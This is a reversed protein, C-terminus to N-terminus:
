LTGDKEMRGLLLHTTSTTFTLPYSYEGTNPTGQITITKGTSADFNLAYGRAPAMIHSLSSPTTWGVTWDPDPDAENYYFINPVSSGELSLGVNDDFEQISVNAVPSCFFHHGPSSIMFREMKISGNFIGGEDIFSATGTVDSKLTLVNAEM